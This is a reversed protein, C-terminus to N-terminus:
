RYLYSYPSYSHPYSRWPFGGIFPAYYSYPAGYYYNPPYLVSREEYRRLLPPAPGPFYDYRPLANYFSVAYGDAGHWSLFIWLLLSLICCSKIAM